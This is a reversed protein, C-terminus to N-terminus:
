LTWLGWWLMLLHELFWAVVRCWEAAEFTTRGLWGLFAQGTCARSTRSVGRRGSIGLVQVPLLLRPCVSLWVQTWRVRRRNGQESSGSHTGFRPPLLFTSNEDVNKIWLFQPKINPWKKTQFYGSGIKTENPKMVHCTKHRDHCSSSSFIKTTFRLIVRSKLM